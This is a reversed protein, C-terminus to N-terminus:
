ASYNWICKKHGLRHLGPATLAGGPARSEVASWFCLQPSPVLSRGASWHRRWMSWSPASMAGNQLSASFQPLLVLRPRERPDPTPPELAVVSSERPLPFFSHAASGPGRDGQGSQGEQPVTGRGWREPASEMPRLAFIHPLAAETNREHRPIYFM